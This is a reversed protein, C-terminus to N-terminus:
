QSGCSLLLIKRMVSMLNLRGQEPEQSRTRLNDFSPSARSIPLDAQNRLKLMEQIQGESVQTQALGLMKLSALNALPMVDSVDTEDLHLMKLATLNALPSVDSVATRGLHLEQLSSLKALPILDSVGTGQLNLQRVDRAWEQTPLDALNTVTKLFRPQPLWLPAGVLYRRIGPLQVPDAVAQALESLVSEEERERYRDVMELASKTGILRLMRVSAAARKENLRASPVLHEVALEGLESLSEAEDLSEPPLLERIVANVQTEVKDNLFEAAARCRVVFVRTIRLQQKREESRRGRKSKTEPLLATLLKSTFARPQDDDAAAFLGARRWSENKEEPIQKALESFREENALREGALMEKFTNHVFDIQNPNPRQLLGSREVLCDLVVSSDDAANRGTVSELVSATKREAVDVDVASLGQTLMFEALTQVIGRRQSLSLEAYEPPFDLELAQQRDRELLTECLKDVIKKQSEPLVGRSKWHLACIMACLLPNRALLFLERSDRLRDLLRQQMEHVDEASKGRLRAEQSVADHWKSILLHQDDRELRELKAELFDAGHLWGSDVAEPRSTVVFPCNKYKKTWRRIDTLLHGRDSQPVEDVGDILILGRGNKLVSEVWRDPPHQLSHDSSKILGPVRNLEPLRGGSCHRLRILFPICGRWQEGHRPKYLDEESHGHLFSDNAAQVAAWRMLTTKGGGAEAFILLRGPQRDLQDFANQCSVTGATSIRSKSQNIRLRVFTDTLQNRQAEEPVDAGFLDVRDM